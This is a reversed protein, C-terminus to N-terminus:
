YGLLPYLEGLRVEKEAAQITGNKQWNRILDQVKPLAEATSMGAKINQSYLIKLLLYDLGTLLQEPTKDNFISPFVKESDNPLGMVQTIEEVICSVLKGHMRAQDVPIIVTASQIEYHGNVRFNAMCVAEQTHEVAGKGFFKEVQSKWLSQRTLIIKFNAQKEKKVLNIKHGTIKTLHQIHMRILDTHMMQDGVQHDIWMNMPSNWKRVFNGQLSYENRLAIEKFAQSIFTPEPWRIM